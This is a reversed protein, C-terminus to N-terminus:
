AVPSYLGDPMAPEVDVASPTREHTRARTQDYTHLFSRVIFSLFMRSRSLLCRISSARSFKCCLVALARTRISVLATLKISYTTENQRKERERQEDLRMALKLQVRTFMM